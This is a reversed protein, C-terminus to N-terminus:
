TIELSDIELRTGDALLILISYAGRAIADLSFRGQANSSTEYAGGDQQPQMIILASADASESDPLVIEGELIRQEDRPEIMLEIDGRASTYLLRYSDLDAQRVGLTSPQLRSDWGLAARLQSAVNSSTLSSPNSMRRATAPDYIQQLRLLAEPTPETGRANTLMRQLSDISLREESM